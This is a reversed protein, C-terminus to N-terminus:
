VACVASDFIIKVQRTRIIASGTNTNKKKTENCKQKKKMTRIMKSLVNGYRVLVPKM